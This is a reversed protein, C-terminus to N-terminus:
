CPVKAPADLKVPPICKKNNNRYFLVGKGEGEAGESPEVWCCLRASTWMARLFGIAGGKTNSRYHCGLIPKIAESAEDANYFPITSVFHHLVHTEVIGHMFYRGVFGFERDITAAAGRTFNWTSADYHPLTPDTHQLYTIWVLWNNVWFYPIIYGVTLVFAGFKMGILTLVAVTTLLGIDSLIILHRDKQDFIPSDPDFHNVGGGFGNKKGVGRGDAAKQHHNHGTTNTTLYLNWGMLQQGILALATVIPADEALETVEHMMKGFKSAYKERSSPVFVQDREIHATAKHHKGHSIKWAFYPVGLASHLIFGVTDNLAKSESFAQHGCEHALVWLGTMIFGQIVTFIAWLLTSAAISEVRPTLVYRFLCWNFTCQVLDRAVYGLSRRASRVFCHKPIAARIQSVSVDPIRFENGYTDLLIGHNSTKLEEKSIRQSLQQAYIPATSTSKGVSTLKANLTQLDLPEIETTDEEASSLSTQSQSQEASTSDPSSSSSSATTLDSPELISTHTVTQPLKPSSM